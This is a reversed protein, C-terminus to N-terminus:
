HAQLISKSFFIGGFHLIKSFPIYILLLQALLFHAVFWGNDPLNVASFTVLGYFYDHTQKLDFHSLFRMADGTLLVALILILAFYDDAATIERVRTLTSRRIMLIVLCAVIVVGAAGGTVFSMTDINDATMGMASLMRDPLASLVRFHGIFILALMVHFIWGLAWLSRDGRFLSRFLFTEKLLEGFREGGSKPAPFLTMKPSALTSWVYIRHIMGGVFVVLTILPLLAGILVTM